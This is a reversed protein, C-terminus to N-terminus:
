AFMLGVFRRFEDTRPAQSLSSAAGRGLQARPQRDAGPQLPMPRSAPMSPATAASSISRSRGSASPAATASRASPAPSRDLAGRRTRRRCGNRSAARDRRLDATGGPQRLAAAREYQIAQRAIRDGTFRPLRLNALGPIIGEKRAPLTMFADSAALVYDVALLLQCHGGIAFADVAAIWPKEIGRGHM